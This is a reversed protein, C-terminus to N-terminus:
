SATDTLKYAYLNYAVFAASGAVLAGLSMGMLMAVIAGVVIGVAVDFYQRSFSGNLTSPLANGVIDQSGQELLAVAVAHGALALM